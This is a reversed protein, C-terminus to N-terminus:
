HASSLKPDRRIGIKYLQTTDFSIGIEEIAERSITEIPNENAKCHGAVSVDLKNPYFEKSKHRKQYLICKTNSDIIWCHIVQHWFGKKHVTRYDSKGILEFNDNYISLIECSMHM